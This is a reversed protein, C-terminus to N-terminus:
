RHGGLNTCSSGPDIERGRFPTFSPQAHLERAIELGRRQVRWDAEEALYNHVIRPQAFPDSSALSVRGRSRPRLNCWYICYGHGEMMGIRMTRSMTFPGLYFQLDPRDLAPDSKLFAQADFPFHSMPGDGHFWARYLGFAIGLPRSAAYLTVPERCEHQVISGFHEQLGSGVGPLHHKTEINVSALSTRDGIGSLLLIQPSQYAGASLIVERRAMAHETRGHRVYAVGTARRGDVLVRTVHAHTLVTLNRRAMAPKLFAVATSCRRGEPTINYQMRSLGEQVEGNFDATAGHGLGRGADMFAQYLPNQANQLRVSLRGDAGHYADASGAFGESRKFYPLVEAFSWGRNGSAGWDDYDKAHGRVYLQSNLSSTGGLMKGRPISLTRGPLQPEEDNRLDWSFRPDKVLAASGLPIKLLPHWDRGGAELVLVRINEDASLRNALVCGASGAGVIVFDYSSDRRTMNGM